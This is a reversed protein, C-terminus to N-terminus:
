GYLPFKYNFILNWLQKAQPIKGNGEAELARYARDRASLACRLLDQRQPETNTASVIGSIRVPDRLPRCQREVLLQFADALCQAYSKIGVCVGESALLLELHFSSLPIPPTRSSKWQKMLQITRALMSGSQEDAQRLYREHMEPSTQLWSGNGDPISYVPYKVKGDDEMTEFFGPVVDVAFAGGAFRIVLAQQDRRMVTQQFLGSLWFRVRTLLTRSDVYKGGWRVDDRALIALFDVDSAKRIATNKSYSGILDFKRLQFGKEL